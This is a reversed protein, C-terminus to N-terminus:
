PWIFTSLSCFCSCLSIELVNKGRTKPRFIVDNHWKRSTSMLLLSFRMQWRKTHYFFRLKPFETSSDANKKKKRDLFVASPFCCSCPPPSSSLQQAIVGARVIAMWRKSKWKKADWDLKSCSNILSGHLCSIFIGSVDAFVIIFVSIQLQIQITECVWSSIPKWGWIAVHTGWCTLGMVPSSHRPKECGFMIPVGRDGGM